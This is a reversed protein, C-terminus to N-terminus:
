IHMSNAVYNHDEKKIIKGTKEESIAKWVKEGNNSGDLFCSAVEDYDDHSSKVYQLAINRDLKKKM